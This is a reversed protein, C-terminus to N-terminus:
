KGNLYRALTLNGVQYYFYFRKIPVQFTEPRTLGIDGNVHKRVESVNEESGVQEMEEEDVDGESEDEIWKEKLEDRYLGSNIGLSNM